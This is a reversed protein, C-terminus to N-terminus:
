PMPNLLLPAPSTELVQESVSGMVLRTLAARGHSSLFAIAAPRDALLRRIGSAADGATRPTVTATLGSDTLETATRTLQEQLEDSGDAGTAIHALEIDLGLQRSWSAAVTVTTPDRRGGDLCVVAQTYHHPERYSQYGPGVLLVPTAASRLVHETVSGAVLRSLQDRNHTAMCVVTGPQEGAIDVIVDGAWGAGVCAVEVQGYSIREAVYDINHAWRGRVPDHVTVLELPVRLRRAVRLAPTIATEAERSGDLPVLLRTIATSAGPTNRRDHISRRTLGAM